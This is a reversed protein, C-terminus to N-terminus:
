PCNHKTLIKKTFSSKLHEEDRSYYAIEIKTYLNNKCYTKALVESIELKKTQKIRILRSLLHEYRDNGNAKILSDPINESYQQKTILNIQEDSKNIGKFALWGDLKLSANNFMPYHQQLHLVNIFKSIKMKFHNSESFILFSYIGALFFLILNAIYTKKVIPEQIEILYKKTIVNWFSSPVLPTLALFPLYNWMDLSLFFSFSLHMLCLIILICTRIYTNKYPLLLLCGLTIEIKPILLTLNTHIIQNETIALILSSDTFNLHRLTSLINFIANHNVTWEPSTKGLGALIYVAAIQIIYGLHSLEPFPSNNVNSRRMKYLDCSWNLLLGWLLLKVLLTDAGYNIITNMNLIFIFSMFAIITFFTCLINLFVLVASLICTTFFFIQLINHEIFPRLSYITSLNQSLQNLKFLSDQAYFYDFIEIRGILNLILVLCASYRFLAISRSDLSYSASYKKFQNFDINM